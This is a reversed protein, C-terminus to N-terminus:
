HEHLLKSRLRYRAKFTILAPTVLALFKLWRDPSKKYNHTSTLLARKCIIASVQGIYQALKPGIQRWNLTNKYKAYTHFLSKISCHMLYNNPNQYWNLKEALILSWIIM